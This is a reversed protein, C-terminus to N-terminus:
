QILRTLLEGNAITNMVLVIILANFFFAITTHWVLTWRMRSDVVKVDPVSFTTSNTFSLYVFDTIRPQQTGPFLIPPTKARYYRSYYTRAYGWNFLAWSLFMTSLAVLETLVNNEGTGLGAIFDTAVILGFLSAGFTLVISIFRVVPHRVIIQVGIPDAQRFRIIVGLALATSALYVFAILSWLALTLAYDQDEGWIASASLWLLAAQAFLGILEGLIALVSSITRVSARSFKLIPSQAIRASSTNKM